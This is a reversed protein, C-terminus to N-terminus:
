VPNVYMCLHRGVSLVQVRGFDYSTSLRLVTALLLPGKLIM